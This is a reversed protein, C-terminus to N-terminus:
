EEFLSVSSTIFNKFIGAAGFIFDINYGTGAIMLLGFGFFGFFSAADFAIILGGVIFLKTNWSLVDQRKFISVHEGSFIVASKIVGILAHSFDQNGIAAKKSGRTVVISLNSILSGTPVFMQGWMSIM